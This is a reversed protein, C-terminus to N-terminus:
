EVYRLLLVGLVILLLPWSKLFVRQWRTRLESLGKVVGIGCGAIAFNLHEAQIRAMVTMHDAGHM